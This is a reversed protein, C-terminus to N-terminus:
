VEVPFLEILHAAPVSTRITEAALNFWTECRDLIASDATAVIVGPEKVLQGDPDAALEVRWPWSRAAALQEIIGKLRGSNSVPRDLLWRCEAVGEAELTAGLMELAPSTEAVKRYSGHMSAMDRWAGDRGILVVGGALAAEVTTLVNYGDLWVNAGALEKPHVEHARRRAANIGSCCCRSVATRQRASLGHRDGVLKLSSEHAYGGDLLWCFDLAAARLLTVAEASFLRADEPHPGRHTRRDPM